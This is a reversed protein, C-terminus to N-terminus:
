SASISILYTLSEVKERSAKAKEGKQLKMEADLDHFLCGQWATPFTRVLSIALLQRAHQNNSRKISVMNRIARVTKLLHIIRGSFHRVYKVGGSM